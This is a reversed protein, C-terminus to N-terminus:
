KRKPQALWSKQAPASKEVVNYDYSDFHWSYNTSSPKSSTILFTWVEKGASSSYSEVAYLVNWGKKLNLDYKQIYDEDMKEEGKISVDKDAYMYMVYPAEPGDEEEVFGEEILAFGGINAGESNYAEIDMDSFIKVTKDSVTIGDPMDEAIPYLYKADLSAPLSLTFGNNQYPAQAVADEGRNSRDSSEWYFIAKVATIQSSSNAVNSATITLTGDANLNGGPTSSGSEPDGEDCSNFAVISLALTIFLGCKFIIKKM